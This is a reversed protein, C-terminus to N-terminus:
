LHFLRSAMLCVEGVAKVYWMCDVFAMRALSGWPCLVLGFICSWVAMSVRRDVRSRGAPVSCRLSGSSGVGFLVSTCGEHCAYMFFVSRGSCVGVDNAFRVLVREVM